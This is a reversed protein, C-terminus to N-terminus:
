DKQVQLCIWEGKQSTALHKFGNKLLEKLISPEDTVLFGSLLVVTGNKSANAIAELSDKIVNLNINALIIDFIKGVPIRGTNEVIIRKCNNATINEIANTISWDDNDIANIESAGMMESLIALIGTGTGFDLVTKGTFDIGEMQEIMLYTTAHHGTGFSMKPTIIIEHKVSTIPQHFGARIAVWPTRCVSDNVVIPKFSSEWKANWNEEEIISRTYGVPIVKLVADLEEKNFDVQPIFAMLSINGEEFGTYGINALLAILLENQCENTNAFDLQIFERKDM